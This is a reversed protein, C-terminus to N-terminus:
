SITNIIPFLDPYDELLDYKLVTNVVDREPGALSYVQFVREAILHSEYSLPHEIFKILKMLERFKEVM